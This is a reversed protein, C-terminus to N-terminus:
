KKIKKYANFAFEFLLAGLFAGAISAYQKYDEPVFTNCLISASFMYPLRMISDIM